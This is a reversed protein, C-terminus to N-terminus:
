IGVVVKAPRLVKEGKYSYGQQVVRLVIDKKDSEEQSIAEHFEPSFPTEGEQIEIRQVGLGDLFDQFMTGIHLVGKTWTHGSVEEPVHLLAQDFTDLVPLLQEVFRIQSYSAFEAKEKEVRAKYNAFEAQMRLLKDQLEDCSSCPETGQKEDVLAEEKALEEQAQLEEIREEVNNDNTEKKAM